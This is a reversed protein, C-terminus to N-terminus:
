CPRRLKDKDAESLAAGARVFLTHYRDLLRLSEPDLGLSNRQEYLRNVRAFLAPDLFIADQHQSLRPAMEAQIKDIEDSTNTSTMEFFVIATRSLM